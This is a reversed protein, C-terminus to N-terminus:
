QANRKEITQALWSSFNKSPAADTVITTEQKAMTALANVRGPAVGVVIWQDAIEVVMVRERNGVSVGGIIKIQAANNGKATNFRRLVWAAAAMLGLVVLLGLTVQMLNGATSTASTSTTAATSAATQAHAASISFLAALFSFARIM